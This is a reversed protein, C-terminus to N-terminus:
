QRQKCMRTWHERYIHSKSSVLPWKQCPYLVTYVGRSEADSRETEGKYM